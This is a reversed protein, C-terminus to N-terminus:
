FLVLCTFTKLLFIHIFKILVPLHSVLVDVHNQLTQPFVALCFFLEQCNPLFAVKLRHTGFSGFSVFLFDTHSFCSLLKSANKPLLLCKCKLLTELVCYDQLQTGPTGRPIACTLRELGAGYPSNPGIITHQYLGELLKMFHTSVWYYELPLPCILVLPHWFIWDLHM